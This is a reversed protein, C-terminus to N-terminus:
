NALRAYQGRGPRQLVGQSVFQQLYREVTREPVNQLQEIIEARGIPTGSLDFLALLQAEVNQLDDVYNEVQTFMGGEGRSLYITTQPAHHSVIHWQHFPEGTETPDALFLQSSTFGLLASTGSIRDQPRKFSYDSRAKTAHHTGLITLKNAKCWKNLRILRSANLHYKNTDCGMFVVLPDVVVLDLERPNMQGILDHLLQLPDSEFKDLSIAEDDILARIKLRELDVQASEALREYSRWTRDAAIYGISLDHKAPHGFIDQNRQLQRIVQMLLTTKGAGSAGALISVEEAPLIGDILDLPADATAM